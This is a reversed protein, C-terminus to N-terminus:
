ENFFDLVLEAIDFRSNNSCTYISRGVAPICHGNLLTSKYGHEIYIMSNGAANELRIQSHLQDETILTGKVANFLDLTRRTGEEIPVINDHQGHIYLSRVSTLDTCYDRSHYAIPAISKLLGPYKCAFYWSIFGGQSFGTMHIREPDVPWQQKAAQIFRYLEGFPEMGEWDRDPTEPHVVIYGAEPGKIHLRSADRYTTARQYHGPVELILGCGREPCKNPASIEYEIGECVVGFFNLQCAVLASLFLGM